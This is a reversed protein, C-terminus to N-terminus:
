CTPPLWGALWGAHKKVAGQALEWGSSCFGGGTPHGLQHPPALFLRPLNFFHTFLHDLVTIKLTKQISTLSKVSYNWGLKERFKPYVQSEFFSAWCGAPCEVWRPYDRLAFNRTYFIFNKGLFGRSFRSPDGVCICKPPRGGWGVFM